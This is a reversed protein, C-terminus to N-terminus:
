ARKLQRLVSQPPSVVENEGFPAGQLYDIGWGALHAASAEDDVWEAVTAIGVRHAIDILTRVFLRDDTSRGLSQIFVGDIKLLDIPLIQLHLGTAHGTGFGSLAIGIGLAKMADLRGRTAGADVLAAEPVEILLRSEIGPRAGLHAALMPLWEPDHLTALAIPLILREERRRALHDAAHELMRGDVLAALNTEQLTPVAGLPVARGGRTALAAQAQLLAPRRSHADVVPRCTLALRRGNLADVLDYPAREAARARAAGSRPARSLVTVESGAVAAELADEALRLLETAESAHDPACAAGLRLNARTNLLAALREM